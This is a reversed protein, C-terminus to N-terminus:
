SQVLKDMNKKHFKRYNKPTLQYREKFKQTFYSPSNFGHNIAIQLITDDSEILQKVSMQLRHGLLYENPTMQLGKRFLRYCESESVDAAEAINKISIKERYGSHIYKVMKDMRKSYSSEFNTDELLEPQYQCLRQWALTLYSRVAMEYGISQNTYDVFAQQIMTIISRDHDQTGKLKIATVGKNMSIPKIYKTYIRSDYSGGLFVPHFVFNIIHGDTEGIDTLRHLTNSNIFVADGAELEFSSDLVYVKCKGELMMVLEIEEHWHWPVEKLVFKSFYEDYGAIPFLRDGHEIMEKGTHDTEIVFNQM